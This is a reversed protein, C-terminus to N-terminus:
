RNHDALWRKVGLLYKRIEAAEKATLDDKEGKGYAIVLLVLWHEPFYAYCVRVAGRKGQKWDRPVFRLKRLGGTGSIVPYVDPCEMISIELHWLDSETSLGLREWDQAFEDTEVFHLLDSPTISGTRKGIM